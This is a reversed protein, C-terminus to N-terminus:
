AAQTSELIEKAKMVEGPKGYAIVLYYDAQLAAEYRLSSERSIGIKTLSIRLPDRDELVMLDTGTAVMWEAITGAVLVPGVGQANFFIGGSLQRWMRCWFSRMEARQKVDSRAPSGTTADEAVPCDRGFIALKQVNYGSQQLANVAAEASRHTRCILVTANQKSM